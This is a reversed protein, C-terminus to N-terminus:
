KVTLLTLKKGVNRSLRDIGDETELFWFNGQLQARYTTGFRRYSIVVVRQTIVLFHATRLKINIQHRRREGLVVADLEIGTHNRWVGTAPVFKRATKTSLQIWPARGGTNKRTTQKTRAMAVSCCVWCGNIIQSRRFVFCVQTGITAKSPEGVVRSNENSDTADLIYHNIFSAYINFTLPPFMRVQLCVTETSWQGGCIGYTNFSTL